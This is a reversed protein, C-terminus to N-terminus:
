VPTALDKQDLESRPSRAAAPVHRSPVFRRKLELFLPLDLQDSQDLFLMGIAASEEHLPLLHLPRNEYIRHVERLVTCDGTGTFRNFYM